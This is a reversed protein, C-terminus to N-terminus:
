SGGGGGGGCGPHLSRDVFFCFPRKSFSAEEGAGVVVPPVWEVPVRAAVGQVVLTRADAAAM